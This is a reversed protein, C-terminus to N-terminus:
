LVMNEVCGHLKKVRRGFRQNKHAKIKVNNNVGNWGGQKVLRRLAPQSANHLYTKGNGHPKRCVNGVSQQCKNKNVAAAKPTAPTAAAEARAFM